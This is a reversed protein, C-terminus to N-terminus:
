QYMQFSYQRSLLCGDQKPYALQIMSQFKNQIPKGNIVEKYLKRLRLQLGYKTGPIVQILQFYDYKNNQNKKKGIFITGIKYESGHYELKQKKYTKGKEHLRRKPLM